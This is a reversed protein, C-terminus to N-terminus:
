IDYIKRVLKTINTLAIAFIDPECSEIEKAKKVQSEPLEILKAGFGDHDKYFSLVKVQLEEKKEKM